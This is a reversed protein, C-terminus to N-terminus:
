WSGVWHMPVNKIVADVQSQVDETLMSNRRDATTASLPIHKKKEVPWRKTQWRVVNWCSCEHVAERVGIRYDVEIILLCELAHLQATFSQSLDRTTWGSQARLENIKRIGVKSLQPSNDEFHQHKTDFHPKIDGSEVVAVSESCILCEPHADNTAPLIFAYKIHGLM